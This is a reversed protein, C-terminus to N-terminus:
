NKYGLEKKIDNIDNLKKIELEFNNPNKNAKYYKLKSLGNRRLEISELSEIFRDLFEKKNNQFNTGLTISQISDIQSPQYGSGKMTILRHEKEYNWDLSKTTLLKFFSNVYGDTLIDIKRENSYIIPHFKFNKWQKIPKKESDFEFCLGKHSDAYHSWMLINSNTESYCVVGIGKLVEEKKINWSDQLATKRKSYHTSELVKLEKSLTEVERFLLSTVDGYYYRDKTPDDNDTIRISYHTIKPVIFNLRSTIMSIYRDYKLDFNDDLGLDLSQLDCEFPDNFYRPDQFYLDMDRFYKLTYESLSTYRYLTM